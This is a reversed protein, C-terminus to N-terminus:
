RGAEPEGEPSGVDELAIETIRLQLGEPTVLSPTASLGLRASLRGNQDFFFPRGHTRALDFPRGAVLVIKAPRTYGIAWAVESPRTGDIFLLDRTLPHHALPEIRTGAAAIVTGDAAVIDREVTIAPDFLRTRRETAPFMGAFRPPAEIRDRAREAAEQELRALEGSRELDSLQAEIRSLLDPEAVPWTQGRVGLDRALASGALLAAALALCLPAVTRRLVVPSRQMM